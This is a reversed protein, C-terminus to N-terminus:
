VPVTICSKPPPYWILVCLHPRWIHDREWWKERQVVQCLMVVILCQGQLTVQAM